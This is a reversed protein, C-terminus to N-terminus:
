ILWKWASPYKKGCGQSWHHLVLSVAVWAKRNVSVLTHWCPRRFASGPMGQRGESNALHQMNADAHCWAWALLSVWEASSLFKLVKAHCGSCHSKQMLDLERIISSLACLASESCGIKAMCYTYIALQNDIIGLPFPSFPLFDLIGTFGVQLLHTNWSSIPLGALQKQKGHVIPTWIVLAFYVNVKKFEFTPKSSTLQM